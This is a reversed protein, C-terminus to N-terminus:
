KKASKPPPSVIVVNDGRVIVTHIAEISGTEREPDPSIEDANELILNLHQDYGRLKGKIKRDGRLEVLVQSGISKQLLDM